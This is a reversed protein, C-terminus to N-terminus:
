PIQRVEQLDRPPYASTLNTPPVTALGRTDTGQPDKVVALVGERLASIVELLGSLPEYPASSRVPDAGNVTSSAVQPEM